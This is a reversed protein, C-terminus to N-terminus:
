TTLKLPTHGGRKRFWNIASLIGRQRIIWQELRYKGPFDAVMIGLLLTLIGQGPLVLMLLGAVVLILGFINRVIYITLRTLPSKQLLTSDPENEHNFYDSPIKGVLWPLAAISGILMLASGAAMWFLLEENASLWSSLLEWLEVM